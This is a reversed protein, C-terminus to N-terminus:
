EQSSEEPKNGAQEFVHILSSIAFEIDSLTCRCDEVLNFDPKFDGHAGYKSRKFQLDRLPKIIASIAEENINLEELLLNLCGLSMMDKKFKPNSKVLDKLIATQFGDIIIITLAMLFDKYEKPKGATVYHVRGFLSDLDGKPKWIVVKGDSIRLSSFKKLHQKLLNLPNYESTWEAMFDTKFARESIPGKPNENYHKWHLQERYPLDALYRIYTHVQGEDNLDYTQLTWAGRCYISRENLMYREPENKYKLLVDAKFYVPSTEFPKGTDEFYSNLTKPNCSHEVTKKNKWDHIIFSAYERQTEELEELTHVPLVIQTARILDCSKNLEVPINTQLRMWTNNDPTSKFVQEQLADRNWDADPMARKLEIFRCLFHGRYLLFRELENREFLIASFKEIDNIIVVKEELEGVNNLTCYASKEKVWHLDSFHLYEQLIEYYCRKDVDYGDFTRYFFLPYMRSEELGDQYNQEIFHIKQADLYSYGYSLVGSMMQFSLELANKSRYKDLESSDITFSNLFFDETSLHILIWDSATKSFFEPIYDCQLWKSIKNQDLSPKEEHKKVFM